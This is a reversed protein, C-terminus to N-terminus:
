WGHIAHGNGPFWILDVVYSLLVSLAYAVLMGIVFPQGRRYLHVGGLRLLVAKVIWVILIGFFGNNVSVTMAIGFGVPHLPWWYLRYHALVLLLSALGGVGFSLRETASLIQVNSIWAVLGGWVNRAGAVFAPETFEFAGGTYGLHLTYLAATLFTLILTLAITVYVGKGVGGMQDGVKAAHAMSCMGLTRWNRGYANALTLLTLDQTSLNGTGIMRVTVTNVDNHPLDLSVLGTEAVVRTVGLYVLILLGLFMVTVSLSLGSAHLWLFMYILGIILGLVATRYSFFERSDDLEPAGGLFKRWVQHLHRRAIWLTFLVFVLFGGFHQLNAVARANTVGVRNMIGEQIIRIVYFFWVSLLVEVRTFYAVGALLINFKLPIPPFSEFLTLQTVSQNGVPIPPVVEFYSIMNWIMLGLTVGFGFWFLRNRAIRPLLHTEDSGDMIMLPVQALPFSLREHDIWQRRLIVMISAGVLFIAIYFTGWWFLPVVWVQWPFPQDAPLGEFFLTVAGGHNSVVLWSPLYEFFISAWRNETSAFYFPGSIVSLAYTSFAWGPIASATFVLFFVVIIEQRTFSRGPFVTKLVPNLIFVVIVLPCLAAIPLHAITIFSAHTVYASHITWLTLLISLVAGLTVARLTLGASVPVHEQGTQAALNEHLSPQRHSVSM